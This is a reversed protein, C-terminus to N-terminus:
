RSSSEAPVAATNVRAEETALSFNNAAEGGEFVQNDGDQIFQRAETRVEERSVSSTFRANIARESENQIGSRSNLSRAAENGQAAVDAREAASVIPAGMAFTNASLGGELPLSVQATAIQTAVALSTILTLQLKNMHNSEITPDQIFRQVGKLHIPTKANM